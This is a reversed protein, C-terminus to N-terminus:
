PSPPTATLLVQPCSPSCKAWEWGGTGKRKGGKTNLLKPKKKEKSRLSDWSLWSRGQQWSSWVMAAMGHGSGVLAPRPVTTCPRAGAGLVCARTHWAKYLMFRYIVRTCSCVRLSRRGHHGVGACVDASMTGPFTCAWTQACVVCATSGVPVGTNRRLLLPASGQPLGWHAPSDVEDRASRGM